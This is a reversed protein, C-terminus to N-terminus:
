QKTRPAAIQTKHSIVDNRATGCNLKKTKRSSKLPYGMNPTGFKM